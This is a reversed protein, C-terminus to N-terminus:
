VYARNWRTQAKRFCQFHANSSTFNGITSGSRTLLLFDRVSKEELCSELDTLGSDDEVQVASGSAWSVCVAGLTSTETSGCDCHQSFQKINGHTAENGASHSPLPCAAWAAFLEIRLTMYPFYQFVIQLKPPHVLSSYRAFFSVSVCPTCWMRSIIGSQTTCRTLVKYGFGAPIGYTPCLHSYFSYLSGVSYIFIYITYIKETAHTTWIKYRLGCKLIIELKSSKDPM